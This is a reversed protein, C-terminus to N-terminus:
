EFVCLPYPLRWEGDTDESHGLLKAWDHTVMISQGHAKLADYMKVALHQKNATEGLQELAQHMIAHQPAELEFEGRLLWAIGYDGGIEEDPPAAEHGPYTPDIKSGFFKGTNPEFRSHFDSCRNSLGADQTKSNLIGANRMLRELKDRTAISDVEHPEGLPPMNGMDGFTGEPFPGKKVNYGLKSELWSESQARIRAPIVKKENCRDCCRGDKVPQANHGRDWNGKPKIRQGCICCNM